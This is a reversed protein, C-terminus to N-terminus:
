EIGGHLANIAGEPDNRVIKLLARAPGVPHRRGQEWNQLTRLSVGIFLAFQSQSLGTKERMARVDGDEVRRVRSPKRRGKRIQDMQKVSEYLDAFLKKDM